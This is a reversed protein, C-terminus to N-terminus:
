FNDFVFSINFRTIDRLSLVQIVFIFLNFQLIKHRAKNTIFM